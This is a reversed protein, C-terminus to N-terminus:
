KYDETEFTRAVEYPVKFGSAHKHGGGGFQEAIKAVDFDSEKTSRLSFQRGSPTDWYCAGFWNKEALIMAADSSMTYPLNAVDIKFGGINMDRTVVPLLEKIDKFHKREIAVGEDFLGICNRAMLDDWVEFDYPYSFIAAQVERTGTLEFKWLDRDEIHKLLTPPAEHQFYHNWTLMAGSHNVDYIFHVNSPLGKLNDIASQHHDIILIFKAKKAMELIVPLKYSFDVMVVYRDTVDPPEQQYIGPYFEVTDKLARRVVWAAGFGDACNGHYICLTKM